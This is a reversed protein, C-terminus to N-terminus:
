GRSSSVSAPTRANYRFGGGSAYDSLVQGAAESRMGVLVPTGRVALQEKWNEAREGEDFGAAEAMKVTAGCVLRSVGSWHTAGLCQVCPETSAFLECGHSALTFSKLRAQAFMIAVIEAHLLSSAQPMVLNMGPAIVVGTDHEYIVAGFPGGGHEVNRRSLEIALDMKQEDSVRPTELDCETYVWDPLHYSLSRPLQDM